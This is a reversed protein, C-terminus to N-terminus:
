GTCITFLLFCVFSCFVNCFVLLKRNGCLVSNVVSSFLARISSGRALARPVRSIGLSPSLPGKPRCYTIAFCEREVWECILALSSPPVVWGVWASFIRPTLRSGREIEESCARDVRGYSFINLSHSTLSNHLPVSNEGWLYQKCIGKPMSRKWQRPWGSHLNNRCFLSNVHSFLEVGLSSTQPVLMVAMKNNQSVLIASRRSTIPFREMYLGGLLM